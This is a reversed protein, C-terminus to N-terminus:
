QLLDAFAEHFQKLGEPSLRHKVDGGYWRFIATTTAVEQLSFHPYVILAM